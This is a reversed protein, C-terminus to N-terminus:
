KGKPVRHRPAPPPPAAPAAAEPEPHRRTKGYSGKFIKGRRTRSDGKGM